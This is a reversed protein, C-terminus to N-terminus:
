KEYKSCRHAPHSEPSIDINEENTPCVSNLVYETRNSGDTAKTSGEAATIISDQSSARHDGSGPVERNRPLCGGPPDKQLQGELLQYKSTCYNGLKIMM